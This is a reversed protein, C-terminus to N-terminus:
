TEVGGLGSEDDDVVLSGPGFGPHTHDVTDFEHIHILSKLGDQLPEHSHAVQAAQARRAANAWPGAEMTKHKQDAVFGLAGRRTRFVGLVEGNVMVHYKSEHEEIDM